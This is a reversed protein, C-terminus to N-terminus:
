LLYVQSVQLRLEGTADDPSSHCNWDRFSVIIEICKFSKFALLFLECLYVEEKGWHTKLASISMDV